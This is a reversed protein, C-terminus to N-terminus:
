PSCPSRPPRAVRRSTSCSRAMPACTSRACASCAVTATSRSRAACDASSGGAVPNWAVLVAAAHAAAVLLPDRARVHATEHALMLSLRPDDLAWRPVVVAPRLAGAVAPGVDPSVRVATGLVVRRPWRRAGRRVRRAAAVLRLAAGATLALWLAAFPRDLRAWGAPAALTSPLWPRRAVTGVATPAPAPDDAAVGDIVVRARVAALPAREAVARGVALAPLAVSLALAMAWAWRAPQDAVRAAREILWAAGAAAVSVALAYLALLAIM